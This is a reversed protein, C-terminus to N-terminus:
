LSCSGGSEMLQFEATPAANGPASRVETTWTGDPSGQDTWRMIITDGCNFQHGIQGGYRQACSTMNQPDAGHNWGCLGFMFSPDADACRGGTADIQATSMTVSEGPSLLPREALFSHPEVTLGQPCLGPNPSVYKSASQNVLTFTLADTPFSNFFTDCGAIGPLLAALAWGRLCHKAM